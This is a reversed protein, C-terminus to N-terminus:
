DLHKRLFAVTANLAETMNEQYAVVDGKIDFLGHEADKIFLLDAKASVSHCREVYTNSDEPNVLSDHDGHVFLAPPDGESIYELPHFKLETWVPTYWIVACAVDDKTVAEGGSHFEPADAAYAVFTALYGGASEGAVAIRDPDIGFEKAHTRVFRVATKADIIAAPLEADQLLRYDISVSVFGAKATHAACWRIINWDKTLAKLGGGHIWVVSPLPADGRDKPSYIDLLLKKEPTEGFVVDRRVDVQSVLDKVHTALFKMVEPTTATEMSSKTILRAADHPTSDNAARNGTFAIIGHQRNQGIGVEGKMSIEGVKGGYSGITTEEDVYVSKSFTVSKSGSGRSSIAEREWPDCVGIEEGHALFCALLVVCTVPLVRASSRSQRKTM